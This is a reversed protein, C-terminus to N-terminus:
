FGGYIFDKEDFGIGYTGFVWIVCVAAIYIGWRVIVHQGLIWDRICMREQTREVVALLLISFLLVMCEKWSLGLRFLSDDFFIWPNWVTFMSQVMALGAKLQRSRFIVWGVMVWFFTGLRQMGDRALSGEPMGLCRYIRDKVPRTADGVVQYVGHLLGWFLYKYGAGHWIGSVAFTLLLNRYRAITGGRSGGLPIYIYDRLWSSLSIHWRRWFEKVSKSRYPRLFNSDLSIGFLGSVGGSISVCAMFDAYLQISYLIGALLVYGGEYVPFNDFVTDVVVGAKDAVMFKLFFGWVVMQLGKTFQREDFRNGGYLQFGLNQYRPIPGQIVQPFFSVFLAYKLINRQPETRGAHVDVLYSIVQLSYFSIGMPVIWSRPTRHLMYQLVFNSHKTLILPLAVFLIALCLWLRRKQSAKQPNPSKERLAHLYRGFFYSGAITGLFIPFARGAAWWYFYLSGALLGLWRHSIPLAYYIILLAAVLIFYKLSVYVM